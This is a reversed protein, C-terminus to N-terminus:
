FGYFNSMVSPVTVTTSSVSPCNYYAYDGRTTNGNLEPPRSFGVVGVISGGGSTVTVTASFSGNANGSPLTVDNRNFQMFTKAANPALDFSEVLGSSYTVTGIARNLQDVNQISLASGFGYLSNMLNPAYLTTSGTSFGNYSATMYTPTSRWVNSIGAIPTSSSTIVAGFLGSSGSPLSSFLTDNMAYTKATSKTLTGLSIASSNIKTGDAKYFDASLTTSTSDSTNQIVIESLFGYFNKMEAPFFLKLAANSSDVGEYAFATWPASSQAVSSTQVSAIVKQTSSVVASYQGQSLDTLGPVYVNVAANGLLTTPYSKVLTGSSNYFNVTVSASSTSMNRILIATNWTGPITTTDRQAHVKGTSIAFSTMLLAFALITTTIRRLM